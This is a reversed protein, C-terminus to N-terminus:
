EAVWQKAAAMEDNHFARVQAPMALGFVKIAARVWEVDSVIALKEWGALHKMGLKTDDWV